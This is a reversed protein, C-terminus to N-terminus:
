WPRSAQETSDLWAVIEGPRIWISKRYRRNIEAPTPLLLNRSWGPMMLSLYMRGTAQFNSKHHCISSHTSINLLLNSEYLWALGQLIHQLATLARQYGQFYMVIVGLTILGQVASFAMGALTGFLVLTALSQTIM